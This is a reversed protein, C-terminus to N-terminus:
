SMEILLHMLTTLQSGNVMDSKIRPDEHVSDNEVIDGTDAFMM